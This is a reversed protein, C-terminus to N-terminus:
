GEEPIIVGGSIGLFNNIGGANANAVKGGFISLVLLFAMIASLGRWLSTKM